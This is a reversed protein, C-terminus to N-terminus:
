KNTKYKKNNIQHSFNIAKYFPSFLLTNEPLHSAYPQSTVSRNIKIHQSINLYNTSLIFYFPSHFKSFPLRLLRGNKYEISFTLDPEFVGNRATKEQWFLLKAFDLGRVFM